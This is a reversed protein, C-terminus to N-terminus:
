TRIKLRISSFYYSFLLSLCAMFHSYVMFVSCIMYGVWLKLQNKKLVQVFFFISTLTTFTLLSYMRAEQSYKIQFVSVAMILAAYVGIKSTFLIKGVKYLMFISLVGFIASPFRVAFESSGFVSIWFYLIIYYFPPHPESIPLNIISILGKQPFDISAV